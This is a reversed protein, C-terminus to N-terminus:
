SILNLEAFKRGFSRDASGELAGGVGSAEGGDHTPAAVSNPTVSSVETTGGDDTFTFGLAKDSIQPALTTTVNGIRLVGSQGLSVAEGSITIQAGGPTLTEGTIAIAPDDTPTPAAVSVPTANLVEPNGDNGTFTFALPGASKDPPLTSTLSGIRLIGSEGLSIAEGSITVQAAGPTLTKGAIAIGPGAKPEAVSVPTVNLVEASGDNGAITFRLPGASNQPGLTSTLSGVRLIGSEGLSIAHGSVTIQPSGPTLTEGAVVLGPAATPEAMSVPTVSLVKANGGDGALTFALPGDSQQPSGLTTLVSGIRLIGSQGLSVAEGSITVQPSGPNLTKGAIQISSGDGPAQQKDAPGDIPVPTARLVEPTGGNEGFTFELPEDSKPPSPLTTTLSGIRLVGSQGLSIEAGSVTLQPGGPTIIKGAVAIDAADAPLQQKGLDNYDDPRTPDIATGEVILHGPKDLAVETGSITVEPGGPKITKGAIALGTPFVYKNSGVAATLFAPVIVAPNAAISEKPSPSTIGPGGPTLFQDNVKFGQPNPALVQNGVTLPTHSAATLALDIKSTGIALIGSSGLSVVVGADQPTAELPKAIFPGESDPIEIGPQGAAIIQDDIKVGGPDPAVVKNGIALPAQSASPAALRIKSTGIDLVRGSEVSVLVSADEAAAGISARPSGHDLALAGKEPGQAPTATVIPDDHGDAFKVMPQLATQPLNTPISPNIIPNAPVNAKDHFLSGTESANTNADSQKPKAKGQNDLGTESNGITQGEDQDSNQQLQSPGSHPNGDHDSTDGTEAGNSSTDVRGPETSGTDAQGPNSTAAVESHDPNQDPQSPRSQPNSNHDYSNGTEANKSPTDSRGPEHNGEDTQGPGLTSALENDDSNQDPQSPRSQPNSSHDSPNGTEAHYSSTVGKGLEHNGGDTQAPVSTAATQLGDDAIRQEPPSPNGAIPKFPNGKFFTDAFAQGPTRGDTQSGSDPSGDVPKTSAVTATPEKTAFPNESNEPQGTSDLSKTPEEPNPGAHNPLQGHIKSHTKSPNPPDVSATAHPRSIRAESTTHYVKIIGKAGQVTQIPRVLRDATYLAGAAKLLPDTQTAPAVGRKEEGIHAVAPELLAFPRMVPQDVRNYCNVVWSPDRCLYHLHPASVIPLWPPGFTTVTTTMADAKYKSALTKILASVGFGSTPTALDGIQIRKPTAVNTTAGGLSLGAGASTLIGPKPSSDIYEEGLAYQGSM